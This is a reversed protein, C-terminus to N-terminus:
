DGDDEVSKHSHVIGNGERERELRDVAVSEFARRM